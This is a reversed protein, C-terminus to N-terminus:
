HELANSLFPRRSCTSRPPGNRYELNLTLHIPIPHLLTRVDDGIPFITEDEAIPLNDGRGLQSSEEGRARIRRTESDSEQEEDEGHSRKRGTTSPDIGTLATMLSDGAFISLPDATRSRTTLVADTGVGGIGAGYVWFAANKKAITPLRHQLKVHAADAMNTAYDNNWSALDSNRLSRQDDMELVRPLRPRRRAPAEASISSEEQRAESSSRLRNPAAPAQAGLLPFPEAQPLM